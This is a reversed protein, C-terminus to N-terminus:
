QRRSWFPADAWRREIGYYYRCHARYASWVNEIEQAYESAAGGEGALVALATEGGRMGSYLANFLGQSSLPDFATAADGTALWGPGAFRDLRKGHAACVQVPAAAEWDADAIEEQLDAFHRAFLAVGDRALLPIVELDADGHFALVRQGTPLPASYWWGHECAEVYTLGGGEKMLPALQWACVLRDTTSRRAGLSASLNSGRGTADILFRARIKQGADTRIDWGDDDGAVSVSTPTRLAIGRKAVAGRLDREFAARDLRWGPGDLDAMSDLEVPEPGGWRSRRAFVQAHAATDLVDAAGLSELVREAAAPLTEGIRHAPEARRDFM